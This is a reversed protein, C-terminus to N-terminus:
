FPAEVPEAFGSLREEGISGTPRENREGANADPEAATGGDAMAGGSSGDPGGPLAWGDGDISPTSSQDEEDLQGHDPAADGDASPASAAASPAVDKRFQSTGFTLDHGIADAVIEVATGHKGEKEWNAVKLRGAVVVRDSKSISDRAHEALRRFAVVTYWNTEGNEWASTTRNYKRQISALRFTLRAFGNGVIDLEPPTGVIGAAFITDPM